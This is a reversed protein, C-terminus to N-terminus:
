VVSHVQIKYATQALNKINIQLFSAKTYQKTSEQKGRGRGVYSCSKVIM